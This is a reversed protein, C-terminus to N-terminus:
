HIIALANGIDFLLQWCDREGFQIHSIDNQPCFEMQLFATAGIEFARLTQVLFRSEPLQRRKFAEERVRPIHGSVKLAWLSHDSVSECLYVSSNSTCRLPRASSILLGYARRLAEMEGASLPHLGSFIVPVVPFCDDSDFDMDPVPLGDM